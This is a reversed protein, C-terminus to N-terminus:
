AARWSSSDRRRLSAIRTGLENVADTDGHQARRIFSGLTHLDRLGTLTAMGPWDRPDYGYATTFADLEATSRGFRIGGQLTPALDLERPGFAPEDWDGLLATSGDWLTNGPYADGHLMGVGLPFDLDAYEALLRGREAVLWAKDDSSLVASSTVLDAFHWLPAAAPLDVPPVPLAHLQRLIRGLHRADPVAKQRQDYHIWFTVVFDGADIPQVIEAPEVCPFDHARLWRTLHVAREARGQAAHPAVKAILDRGPSPIRYVSTAHRRLPVADGPDLGAERCALVLAATDPLEAM